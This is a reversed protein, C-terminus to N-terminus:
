RRSTRSRKPSNNTAGSKRSGTAPVVRGGGPVKRTSTASTQRIGSTSTGTIYNDVRIEKKLQEFVKAVAEQRKEERLDKEILDRVDAYDVNPKTIGECLLIIFRGPGVQIIGSIEDPKLKFAEDVLKKSGVHRRIRPIDGGLARSTPDISYERALRSFDEKQPGTAKQWVDQARRLNDLMIMKAEVRPGYDREFVKRRDAETIVIEDGAIKRLSLMPWIIDRQYQAPTLNREAQLMQYWVDPDLKFKQAIKLVEQQVETQTVQIGKQLCAQQIIYRNIMNELVESGYRELCENALMERTIVQKGVRAMRQPGSVNAVGAPNSNSRSDAANSTDARFIQILVGATLVAVFLTSVILTLKNIGFSRFRSSKTSGTSTPQAPDSM